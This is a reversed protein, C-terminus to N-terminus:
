ESRSRSREKFEEIKEERSKIPTTKRPSFSPTPLDEVEDFVKDKENILEGNELNSKCQEHEIKWNDELFVERIDIKTKHDIGPNQSNKLSADPSNVIFSNSPTKKTEPIQKGMSLSRSRMSSTRKYKTEAIMRFTEAELWFDLLCKKEKEQLFELFHGLALSKKM